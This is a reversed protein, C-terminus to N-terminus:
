TAIPAGGRERDSQAAQEKIDHAPCQATSLGERVERLLVWHCPECWADGPRADSLDVSGEEPPEQLPHGCCPCMTTM